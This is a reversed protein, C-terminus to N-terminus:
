NTGVSNCGAMLRVAPQQAIVIYRSQLILNGPDAATNRTHCRLTGLRTRGPVSRRANSTAAFRDLHAPLHLRRHLRILSGFLQDTSGLPQTSPFWPLSLSGPGPSQSHQNGRIKSNQELDSPSDSAPPSCPVPINSGPLPETSVLFGFVAVCVRPHGVFCPAFRLLLFPPSNSSISSALFLELHV